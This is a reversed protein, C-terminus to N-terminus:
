SIKNLLNALKEFGYKSIWQMCVTSHKIKKLYYEFLNVVDTQSIQRQNELTAIFEFFNLFDTLKEEDDSITSDDLSIKKEIEQNDILRRVQKYNESEYFKEFLLQLWEGKKIKSQKYYGLAAIVIAVLGLAKISLDIWDKLCTDM